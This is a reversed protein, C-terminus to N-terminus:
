KFKVDMRLKMLYRALKDNNVQPAAKVVKPCNVKIALYQNDVLKKFPKYKLTLNIDKISISLNSLSKFFRNNILRTVLGGKFLYKLENFSLSNRKVGAWISKEIRHGKEDFYYYGYQKCGLVLLESIIIGKMEDKMKGLENGIFEDPLKETTLISDTDTYITYPLIKFPLMKIRAYATIASAIAVNSKVSSSFNIVTDDLENGLEELLSNNISESLLLITRESDIPIINKVSHSILYNDLQDNHVTVTKITELKRGFIGYLSNLLLKAIFREPGDSTAKLKYMDLVYQNFLFGKSFWKAAHINVIKYGLPLVAKLEESFYTGHFVGRPFITRGEHKFPLVPRFVSDPCEIDVELFGFFEELKFNEFNTVTGIHKLPMEECMAEPYLSNKDYYYVNKAEAKYIDVSGGYYSERVFSDNIKNLIPIEKDLYKLRFIRLALSPLSLSSTIDVNYGNIFQEQANSLAEHLAIVDQKSYNLLTKMVKPNDLVEINNWEMQYSSLKGPVNFAKCLENLSIPFLRMSDKFTYSRGEYVIKILIYNGADDIVCEVNDFISAM